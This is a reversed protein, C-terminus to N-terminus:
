DEMHKSAEVAADLDKRQKTISLVKYKFQALSVEMEPLDDEEYFLGSREFEELIYKQLDAMKKMEYSYQLCLEIDKKQIDMLKKRIEEDLDIVTWTSGPLLWTTM